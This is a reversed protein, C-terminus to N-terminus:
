DTRARLWRVISEALLWIIGWAFGGGIVIEMGGWSAAPINKNIPESSFLYPMAWFLKWIVVSLAGLVPVVINKHFAMGRKDLLYEVPMFILIAVIIAPITGVFPFILILGYNPDTNLITILIFPLWLLICSLAIRVM